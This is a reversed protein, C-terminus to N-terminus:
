RLKLVDKGRQLTSTARQHCMLIAKHHSGQLGVVMYDKESKLRIKMSLSLKEKAIIGKETSIKM